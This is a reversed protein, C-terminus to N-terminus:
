ASINRCVRLNPEGDRLLGVLVEEWDWFREEVWRKVVQKEGGQGAIAEGGAKEQQGFGKLYTEGLIIRCFVRYLAWIAKHVVEADGDRSLSLLPLLPNPDNPNSLLTSELSIIKALSASKSNSSSSPLSKPPPLSSSSKSKKKSPGPIPADVGDTQNTGIVDKDFEIATGKGKSKGRKGSGSGNGNVDDEDDRDEAKRKKGAGGGPSSKGGVSDVATVGKLDAAFM